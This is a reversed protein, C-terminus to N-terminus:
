EYERVYMWYYGFLASPVSVWIFLFNMPIKLINEFFIVYWLIFSIIHLFNIKKRVISTIANLVGGFISAFIVLILIRFEEPSSLFMQYMLITILMGMTFYWSRETTKSNKSLPFFISGLFVEEKPQEIHQSATTEMHHVHQNVKM